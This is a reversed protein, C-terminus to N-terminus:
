YKEEIIHPTKKRTLVKKKNIDAREKLLLIERGWIMVDTLCYWEWLCVVNTLVKEGYESLIRITFPKAIGCAIGYCVAINVAFKVAQM